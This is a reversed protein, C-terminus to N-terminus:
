WCPDPPGGGVGNPPGPPAVAALSQRLLKPYNEVPRVKNLHFLEPFMQLMTERNELMYSVGSPTRANDELVFFEDPGTRVIDTGVIHTYVKGPPSFGMMRPLFADNKAVLDFPVIGARLIEQRNYVDHIFANIASVRQAIGKSLRAWEREAIIRPVLDFPILREQAEAQGYVNFTIGSRRFFTEAEQSKRTLHAPDQESFWKNYGTYPDRVADPGTIMEDFRKKDKEM